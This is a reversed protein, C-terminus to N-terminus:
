YGLIRAKDLIAILWDPYNGDPYNENLYRMLNSPKYSIQKCGSCYEFDRDELIGRGSYYRGTVFEVGILRNSKVDKTSLKNGINM